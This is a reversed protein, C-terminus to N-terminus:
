LDVLDIQLATCKKRLQLDFTLLTGNGELVSAALVADGYDDILGPWLHFVVLPSFISEIELGPTQMMDIVMGRVYEPDLKYVSVCVYMFETLIHSVVILKHQLIAAKEFFPAIKTQQEPNRDTVFSILCNTDLYYTKM